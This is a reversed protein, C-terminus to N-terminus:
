GEKKVEIKLKHMIYITDIYYKNFDAHITPTKGIM